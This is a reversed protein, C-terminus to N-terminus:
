QQEQAGIDPKVGFFKRGVEIGRDILVSGRQPMMFNVTPLDGNPLRPKLLEKEDLSVFDKVTLPAKLDFSNHSIQCRQRDVNELDSTGGFSVNNRIVHDYGPVDGSHDRARGLMNFNRRNRFSSNALFDIGGMQHNSYFGSSRNKAAICGIVVHRPIVQPLRQVPTGAYGGVKFGNGDGLAESKANTGNYFAWCNELRHSEQTSISDFGDDSNYWARCGRFINNISGRPVHFGFGDVNGGRRNESTFDHNNYADCNLVLNNSGKGLWFGIGQGDRMTLREFLNNSGLNEINISQTHGTITVQVGVTTLGSLQLWSGSVRLAHVRQQAPKVASFDFVPREQQYAQYRIPKEPLGSKDLHIVLARNQERAMIQAETLLYNGGRIYVTDGPKALEQARKLSAIPRTLTGEYGDNGNPAVFYESAQLPLCFATVLLLLFRMM